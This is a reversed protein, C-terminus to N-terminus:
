QFFAPPFELILEKASKLSIFLYQGNWQVEVIHSQSQESLQFVVKGTATDQIGCQRNDWLRTDNLHLTYSPQTSLEVPPSGSTRFDWGSSEKFVDEIWIRPGDVALLKPRYSSHEVRGAAEGTWIDWAQIFDENICFIKSGDGSIRLDLLNDESIDAQLLLKGKKPNWININGDGYWVLVLRDNIPKIYGHKYDEVPSESSAKCFSAPIDWTKVTGGIGSSIAIGDRAQLSISSILPLTIPTSEPNVMVPDASSTSIQWFKVTKDESASILTSPSSFVLSTIYGAHGIFTEVLHPNSSTIDWIYITSDAAVAVTGGDLSFCCCHTDSTALQFKALIVGSNSNQITVVARYCSVFLTGDSSFAIHSGDSPPNIQYGNTDWQWLKGGCISILHRPNTPSFRIYEVSNQQEIVCQCKGTQIDWLRITNDSSGSAIITCDVSISVSWVLRTHSTFTKVVGGTQIDWLNVTFDDSGSVLSTGDSSFTACNVKGTHGSLVATQSGTITDLIIINGPESGVAVTDNWCSLTRTLSGLLVTRSCKGWEVPLGKVVKM